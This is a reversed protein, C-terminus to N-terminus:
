LLFNLKGEGPELFANGKELQQQMSAIDEGRIGLSFDYIRRLMRFYPGTQSRRTLQRLVGLYDDRFVTPILIRAQSAAVLEANMMIRAVRGNGDLFPHVESILFLMFAARKFPHNLANYIEFGRALTGQVLEKDVFVTNGAQNNQEKFLGPQLQPRAHLLLRHRVKLLQILEDATRPLVSMERRDSVLRYTGLIDHSDENRAPLPLGSEVIQRAEELGFVTGEIYNSFYSEFFAFNRFAKPTSNVEDQLPFHTAELERFLDQFLLVRHPDYPKGLARATGLSSTLVGADRTTLMAAIISELSVFEKEMDLKGALIRADDRLRNVEEEGHLRIMQDLKEEIEPLSLTKSEPGPRQARQMNELFARAEQSVYLNGSFSRDGEVPGPGELFRLIVGPLTVKKTYSYSLFIHGASTPAFEFASRHSLMVGPYLLGLVEFLNRRIIEEPPDDFNPTYLRPAIKRIIGRAYLGSIQRNLKKNSTGAIVENLHSSPNKEM